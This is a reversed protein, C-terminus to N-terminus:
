IYTFVHIFYITYIKNTIFLIIIRHIIFLSKHIYQKTNFLLNNKCRILKQKILQKM